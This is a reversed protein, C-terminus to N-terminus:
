QLALIEAPRGIRTRALIAPIRLADVLEHRRPSDARAVIAEITADAAEIGLAVARHEVPRRRLEAANAQLERLRPENGVDGVVLPEQLVDQAEARVARVLVSSIAIFDIMLNVRANNAAAHSVDAHASRFM